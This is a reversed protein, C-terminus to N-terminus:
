RRSGIRPISIGQAGSLPQGPVTRTASATPGSEIGSRRNAKPCRSFVVHGVSKTVHALESLSKAPAHGLTFVGIGIVADFQNSQFGLTEGLVMRHLDSYVGNRRAEELKGNALDVAVLDACRLNSLSEGVM